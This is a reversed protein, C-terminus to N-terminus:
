SVVEGPLAASAIPPRPRASRRRLFRPPMPPGWPTCSPHEVFGGEVLGTNCCNPSLSLDFPLPEAFDWTDTIGVLLECCDRHQDTANVSNEIFGPEAFAALLVDNCCPVAVDDGTCAATPTNTTSGSTTESTTAGTTESTTAGTTEGPSTEDTDTEADSDVIVSGTCGTIGAFISLRAVVAIARRDLDFALM